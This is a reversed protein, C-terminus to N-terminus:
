LRFSSNQDAPNGSESSYRSHTKHGTTKLIPMVAKPHSRREPEDFYCESVSGGQRTVIPM